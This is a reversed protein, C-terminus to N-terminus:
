YGWEMALQQSAQKAKRAIESPTLPSPSNITIHQTIGGSRAAMRESEQNSYVKSGRPLEILEPGQEGVWTLGGRWYNTGLANQGVDFGGGPGDFRLSPNNNVKLYENMKEIANGIFGGIQGFLSKASDRLSAWATKIEGTEWNVADIHEAAQLKAEDVIMLHMEQAKAVAENRQRTAEQILKDAQEASITGTEDRQRIIAKVVQDYQEEAAEVARDRQEASNQVVEAAQRATIDGAQAKMRELISKAELENESLVRIATDTMEQQILNIEEQEERTLARKEASAQELIEKIRAEKEAVAERQQRHHKQMSALTEAQEEETLGQADAFFQEM